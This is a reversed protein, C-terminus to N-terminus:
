KIRAILERPNDKIAKIAEEETLGAERAIQYAQEQTIFNDPEHSDTNVVLKAGTLKALKAVHMNGENHGRKATLELFVGSEAALRADEETLKNGPHAMIDILGKQKAIEHNTGPMVPEMTTEGHAVIIKAGLDRAKAALKAIYKPPVHTLEVGPLIKIGFATGEEKTFKVLSKVVSELNSSDVHDTIAIAEYGMVATRRAIESPLLEGDSLLSHMHLDIRGGIDKTM